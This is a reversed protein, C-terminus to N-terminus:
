NTSEDRAGPRDADGPRVLDLVDVVIVSINDRGGNGLAADLMGQAAAEPDPDMHLFHRIGYPTLEKTLGDSCLLMRTGVDIPVFRYDPRPPEHFGVARTIVNSHPHTEAEERTIHGADVLEQVISHDVTLQDLSGTRLRYVRSDGINFVTWTPEGDVLSVAIGTVTTGSSQDAGGPARDMDEVARRLSADIAETSIAAVDHFEALQTVVVSSAVDGAAHGGMGDAVVFLPTQALLSDENVERRKGTDTLAAWALTVASGDPLGVTQRASRQGIQTM